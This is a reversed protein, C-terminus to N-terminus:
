YSGAIDDFTITGFSYTVTTWHHVTVLAVYSIAMNNAAAALQTGNYSISIVSGVRKIVFSGTGSDTAGGNGTADSTSCSGSAIRGFVAGGYGSSGDQWGGIAVLDGTATVLGVYGGFVDNAVVGTWGMTFSLEFDKTGIDQAWRIQNAQTCDADYIWGSTSPPLSTDTITMKGGGVSYAYSGLAQVWQGGLSSGDFGDHFTHLSTQGEWALGKWGASTYVRVQQLATDFYVDGASGGSPEEGLARLSSTAGGGGALLDLATQVETASLGSGSGDYAVNVAQLVGPALETLAVCGTCSVDSAVTGLPQGNVYYASANVVGAVDLPYAPAPVGVGIKGTATVNGEVVLSARSTGGGFDLPRWAGNGTDRVRVGSPVQLQLWGDNHDYLGSESVKVACGAQNATCAHLGGSVTVDGQLAVGAAIDAGGVCGTCALDAAAGGQTAAGAYSFSVKAPTVAGAQIHVTGVAGAELEAASVCGGQCDVDLAGGGKTSGLAWPFDVEDGSVCGSCQLGRASAADVAVLASAVPRVPRRPLADGGVSTQLWLDPTTSLLGAPLPGIDADFMGNTLQVQGLDQSYLAQGGTQAAYLGITLGYPGTAPVGGPAFLSGQITLVPTPEAGRAPPALALLLGLLLLSSPRPSVAIRACLWHAM